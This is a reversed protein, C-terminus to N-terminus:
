KDEDHGDEKPNTKTETKMCGFEKIMSRLIGTGSHSDEGGHHERMKKILEACLSGIGNPGLMKCMMEACPIAEMCTDFEKQSDKEKDM